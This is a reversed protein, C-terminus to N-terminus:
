ILTKESCPNDYDDEFDNLLQDKDIKIDKKYVTNDNNTKEVEAKTNIVMQEFSSYEKQNQRDNLEDKIEYETKEFSFDMYEKGKFECHNKLYNFSDIDNEKLELLDNTLTNTAILSEIYKQLNSMNEDPISKEIFEQLKLPNLEKDDFIQKLMNKEFSNIFITQENQNLFVDQRKIILSGITKYFDNELQNLYFKENLSNKLNDFVYEAEAKFSQEDQIEYELEKHELDTTIQTDMVLESLKNNLQEPKNIFTDKINDLFTNMDVKNLNLVHLFSEITRLQKQIYQEQNM